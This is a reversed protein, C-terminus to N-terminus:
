NAMVQDPAPTFFINQIDNDKKLEEVISTWATYLAVTVSTPDDQSVFDALNVQCAHMLEDIFNLRMDDLRTDAMAYVLRLHEIKERENETLTLWYMSIVPRCNNRTKM